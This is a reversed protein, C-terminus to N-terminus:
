LYRVELEGFVVKGEVRLVNNETQSNRGRESTDGFIADVNLIVKWGSPVYLVTEGFTNEVFVHAEGNQLIANDFYIDLEGFINKLFVQSVENGSLYKVSEGFTNIFSVEEGCLVDERALSCGQNNMKDRFEKYKKKRNGPFLINLGITGLLAAGLVPWPTIAEMGLFEDNVIIMFALSFLVMGYSRQLIGDVFIGILAITILISWFGIGELYGMKGVILALAGIIFMIGWFIKRGQKMKEEMGMKLGNRRIECNDVCGDTLM